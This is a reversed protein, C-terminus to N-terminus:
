LAELARTTRRISAKANRIAQAYLTSAANSGFDIEAQRRNAEIERLRDYQRELRVTLDHTTTM